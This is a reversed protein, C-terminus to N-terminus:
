RQEPLLIVPLSSAGAVNAAVLVARMANQGNILDYLCDGLSADRAVPAMRNLEDKLDVHGLPAHTAM